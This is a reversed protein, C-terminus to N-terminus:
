LLLLIRPIFILSAVFVAGLATLLMMGAAVDKAIKASKKYETTVLDTLAEISTNVMEIGLGFIITFVLIIMEIYTIKFLVGLVLVFLSLSLHVKFNPQTTFAWVLGDWAHKFSIHHKKILYM